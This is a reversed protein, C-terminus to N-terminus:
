LASCAPKAQRLQGYASPQSCHPGKNLCPGSSAGQVDLWLSCQLRGWCAQAGTDSDATLM